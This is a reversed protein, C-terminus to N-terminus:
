ITLRRKKKQKCESIQRLANAMKVTRMRARKAKSRLLRLFPLARSPFNTGFKVIELLEEKTRKSSKRNFEVVEAKRKSSAEKFRTKEEGRTRDELKIQFLFDSL